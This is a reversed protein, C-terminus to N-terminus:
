RGHRDGERSHIRNFEATSPNHTSDGKGAAKPVRDIIGPIQKLEAVGMRDGGPHNGWNDSRGGLNSKM